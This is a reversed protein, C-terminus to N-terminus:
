GGDAAALQDRRSLATDLARYRRYAAAADEFSGQLELVRGLQRHTDAVDPDLAISQRYAEEAAQLKGLVQLAHGYQVWIAPANPMEALGRRYYRAALKWDGTDRARDGRAIWGRGSRMGYCMVLRLGAFCPRVIEHALDGSGARRALPRPVVKAPDFQATRWSEWLALDIPNEALIGDRTAPSLDDANLRRWAVQRNWEVSTNRRPAITPVSLERAMAAIVRDCDTYAGVFWFEALARNLVQYKQADSMTLLRPSPIELWRSLLFHAVYDRKLARQQVAFSYTGRGKSLYNMMRYNYLSIQWSVPDRLLLIRRIERGRFHRELSRGVNHGAVVQVRRPDRARRSRRDAKHTVQWFIGPACHEAFHFQITQGATKPVHLVFYVPTNSDLALTSRAKIAASRGCGRELPEGITLSETLKGGLILAGRV